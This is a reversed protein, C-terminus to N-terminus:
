FGFTCDGGFYWWAFGASIFKRTDRLLHFGVFFGFGVGPVIQELVRHWISTTQLLADLTEIASWIGARWIVSHWTITTGCFIGFDLGIDKSGSLWTWCVASISFLSIAWIHGWSFEQCDHTLLSHKEGTLIPFSLCATCFCFPPVPGSLMGSDNGFNSPGSARWCSREIKLADNWLAPQGCVEPTTMILAKSSTM